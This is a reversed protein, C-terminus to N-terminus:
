ARGLLRRAARRVGRDPDAIREEALARYGAPDEAFRQLAARIAAARIEPGTDAALERIALDAVLVPVSSSLARAIALREADREAVTWNCVLEVREAPSAVYLIRTLGNAVAAQVKAARDGALSRLLELAEHKGGSWLCSAAEAVRARVSDRADRALLRLVGLKTATDADSQEVEAVVDSLVEAPLEELETAASASGAGLTISLAVLHRFLLRRGRM